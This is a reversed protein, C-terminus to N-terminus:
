QSDKIRWLHGEIMVIRNRLYISM